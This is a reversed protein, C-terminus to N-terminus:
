EPERGAPRVGTPRRLAARQHRGRREAGGGPWPPTQTHHTLWAVTSDHLRIQATSSCSTYMVARETSTMTSRGKQDSTVAITKPKTVMNRDVTISTVTALYRYRPVNIHSTIRMVCYEIPASHFTQDCLKLLMNMAGSDIVSYTMAWISDATALATTKHPSTDKM